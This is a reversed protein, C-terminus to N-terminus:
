SQQGAIFSGFLDGAGSKISQRWIASIASSPDLDLSIDPTKNGEQTSVGCETLVAGAPLSSRLQYVIEAQRDRHGKGPSPSMIVNGDGDTEVKSISHDIFSGAMIEAWR